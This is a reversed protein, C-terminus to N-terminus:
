NFSLLAVNLLSSIHKDIISKAWEEGQQKNEYWDSAITQNQYDRVVVLWEEPNSPLNKLKIAYGKYNIDIM